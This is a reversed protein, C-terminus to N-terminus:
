FYQCAPLAPGCSRGKVGEVWFREVSSCGPGMARLVSLGTALGGESGLEM